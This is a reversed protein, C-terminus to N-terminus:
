YSIDNQYSQGDPYTSNKINGKDKKKAETIILSIEDVINKQLNYLSLPTNM